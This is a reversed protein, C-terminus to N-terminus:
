SSLHRKMRIRPLWKTTKKKYSTYAEGFAEQLKNEEFRAIYDYFVFICILLLFSFLSLTTFFFGVYILLASLYLPHRVLSFVGTDIVQPPDRFEEFIIKHAAFALYVAILFCFGALVLRIALPIHNALLTSIKFIFSDLSWVILFLVISTIQGTHGYPHEECLDKRHDQNGHSHIPSSNEKNAMM